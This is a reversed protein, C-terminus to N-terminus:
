MMGGLFGGFMAAVLGILMSFFGTWLLRSSTAITFVSTRLNFTTIVSPLAFTVIAIATIAWLTAANAIGAGVARWQVLSPAVPPPEVAYPADYTTGRPITM